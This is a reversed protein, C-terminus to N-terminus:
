VNKCIKMKFVSLGKREKSDNRSESTGQKWHRQWQLRPGSWPLENESIPSLLFDLPIKSRPIWRNAGCKRTLRKCILCNWNSSDVGAAATCVCGLKIYSSRRPTSYSFQFQLQSFFYFFLFVFGGFYRFLALDISKHNYSKRDTINATKLSDKLM